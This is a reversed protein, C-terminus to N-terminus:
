GLASKFRQIFNQTRKLDVTMVRCTALELMKRNSKWSPPLNMGSDSPSDSGSWAEREMGEEGESKEYTEDSFRLVVPPSM